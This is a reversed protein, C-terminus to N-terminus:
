PFTQGFKSFLRKIRGNMGRVGNFQDNSTFAANLRTFESPKIVPLAELASMCSSSTSYGKSSELKSIILEAFSPGSRPDNMVLEMIEIAVRLNDLPGTRLAQYKGMFGYPLTGRELPIVRAGRAIAFGIEQDTWQSGHFEPTLYALLGDCTRLALEIQEQWERSPTIDVHAVFASIGCNSLANQLAGVEVKDESRHSIFLRYFDDEWFDPSNIPQARAGGFGFYGALENLAENPADDLMQMIYYIKNGSWTDETPLHFQRLILDVMPWDEQNMRESIERILDVREGPKM